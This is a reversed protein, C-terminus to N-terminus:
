GIARATAYNSLVTGADDPTVNEVVSTDNQGDHCFYIRVTM